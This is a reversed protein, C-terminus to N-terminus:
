STRSDVLDLKLHDEGDGITSTYGPVPSLPPPSHSRTLPPYDRTVHPYVTAPAPIPNTESMPADYDPGCTTAGVQETRMATVTTNADRANRGLGVQVIILTPVMGVVQALGADLPYFDNLSVDVLVYASYIFGSEVLIAVATNYKKSMGPGLIARAKHGIWWIRTAMLTTVVVNLCVTIIRFANLLKRFRYEQGSLGIFTYGCASGGILMLCPVIIIRKSNGWVTYCRYIVLSDAIINSTIYILYKFHINDDPIELQRLVYRYLYSIALTIDIAALLYMAIACALMVKQTTRKHSVLIRVCVIFLATYIGFLLTEFLIAATYQYLSSYSVDSDSDALTLLPGGTRIHKAVGITEVSM